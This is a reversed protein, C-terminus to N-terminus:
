GLIDRMFIGDTLVGLVIFFLGIGITIWFAKKEEKPTSNSLPFTLFGGGLIIIIGLILFFPSIPLARFVAFPLILVIAAVWLM